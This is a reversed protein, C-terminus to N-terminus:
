EEKDPQTDDLLHKAARKQPGGEDVLSQLIRIAEKKNGLALYCRAAQIAAYQRKGRRGEGMQQKYQKLAASYKGGSYLEDASLEKELSKPADNMSRGAAMSKNYVPAAAVTVENTTRSPLKEISEVSVKRSQESSQDAVPVKDAIADEREEAQTKKGEPQKESGAQSQKDNNDAMIVPQQPPQPNEGNKVLGDTKQLSVEAPEASALLKQDQGTTTMEATGAEGANMNRSDKQEIAQALTNQEPKHPNRELYWLLGFGLLLAAAIGSPRWLPQARLKRRRRAPLAQAVPQAPAMSNLHVQPNHLSFHDKLFDTNLETVMAAAGGEVQEFLGEVAESCFPCSNLHLEVAYSEENAMEGLVYHRMQKPTLCASESFIYKLGENNM